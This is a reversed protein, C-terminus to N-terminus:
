RRKGALGFTWAEEFDEGLHRAFIASQAEGDLVFAGDTKWSGDPSYTTAGQKQAQVLEALLVPLLGPHEEALWRSVAWSHVALDDDWRGRQWAALDGLQLLTDDKLLRRALKKSTSPWSGHEVAFVFSDRDPFCAVDREVEIELSWALGRALWHPLRGFDRSVLLAGLRHVLENSPDWEDVGDPKTQWAAVLPRELSFGVTRKAGGAWEALYPELTVLHALLAEYDDQDDVAVLVAAPAAQAPAANTKVSADRAAIDLGGLPPLMADYAELAQTVLKWTKRPAKRGEVLLLVRGDDSLHLSYGHTAAWAGWASIADRSGAEVEFPLETETYTEGQWRVEADQAEVAAASVLLLTTLGLLNDRLRRVAGRSFTAALPDEQAVTGVPNSEARLEDRDTRAVLPGALPEDSPTGAGQRRPHPTTRNM